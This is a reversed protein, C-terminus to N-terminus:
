GGGRMFDATSLTASAADEDGTWWWPQRPGPPPTYGHKQGIIKTLSGTLEGRLKQYRKTQEEDRPRDIFEAIM